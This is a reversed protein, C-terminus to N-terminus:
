KVLSLRQDDFISWLEDEPNVSGGKIGRLIQSLVSESFGCVWLTNPINKFNDMNNTKLGWFIQLPNWGISSALLYAEMPSKGKNYELDTIYLLVNPLDEVTFKNTKVLDVFYEIVAFMNTSAVDGPNAKRISALNETFTKEESLVQYQKTQRTFAEKAVYQNPRNDIFHSDGCIKFNNSFWGYTNRFSVVPNRTSFAILITAAVDFFTLRAFESSSPVVGSSGLSSSMSGSGDIVPFVNVVMDMKEVLAQYTNNIQMDSLKGSFMEKLMDVSQMGTAKVKYEKLLQQTTEKDGKSFAERLKTAVKEQSKEWEIYWNAVKEWIGIKPQLNGKEDKYVVMKGFRFRSAATLRDMLILFEQKSTELIRKSCILQEITNQTKRFNRYGVYDFYKNGKKDEKEVIDWKAAKSLKDIFHLNHKQRDLVVSQKNRPYSVIDGTKVIITKKDNKTVILNDTVLEGNLKVWSKKFPLTWNFTTVGKKAKIVKKTTRTKGTEVKPLHKALLPLHRGLNLQRLIANIIADENLTEFMFEKSIVNGKVRDTKVENHLFLGLESIEMFFDMLEASYLAEPMNKHMWRICSRFNEREQAGGPGPKVALGRDRLLDHDNLRSVDGIHAIVRRLMTPYFEKSSDVKSGEALAIDLAPHIVRDGANKKSRLLQLAELTKFLRVKSRDLM